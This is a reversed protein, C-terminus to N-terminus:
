TLKLNQQFETRQLIRAPKENTDVYIMTFEYKVNVLM